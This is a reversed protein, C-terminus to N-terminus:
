RGPGSATTIRAAGLSATRGSGSMRRNMFRRRFFGRTRGTFYDPNLALEHAKHDDVRGLFREAHFYGKTKSHRALTVLVHPLVGSFLETNFFDYADQFAQYQPPTIPENEIATIDYSEFTPQNHMRYAKLAERRVKESVAIM